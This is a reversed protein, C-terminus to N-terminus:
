QRPRPRYAFLPLDALPPLLTATDLRPPAATITTGNVALVGRVLALRVVPVRGAVIARLVKAPAHGTDRWRGATIPMDESAPGCTLRLMDAGAPAIAVRTDHAIRRPLIRRLAAAFEPGSVTVENRAQM